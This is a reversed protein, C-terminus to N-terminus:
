LSQARVQLAPLREYLANCFTHILPYFLGTAVGSLMLDILVESGEAYLLYLMLWSLFAFLLSVITFSLWSLRFEETMMFRRGSSVALRMLIFIFAGLGLPLGVAIDQILGVAFLVAFPLITPRYLSWYYIMMWPVFVFPMHEFPLIKPSASLLTALLLLVSPSCRMVLVSVYDSTTHM